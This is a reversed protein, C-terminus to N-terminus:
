CVRISTFFWQPPLGVRAVRGLKSAMDATALCKDFAIAGAGGAAIAAVLEEGGVVEAGPVLVLCSFHARRRNAPSRCNAPV